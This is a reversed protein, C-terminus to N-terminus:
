LQTTQVDVVIKWRLTAESCAFGVNFRGHDAFVEYARPITLMRPRPLIAAGHQRFIPYELFGEAGGGARLPNM